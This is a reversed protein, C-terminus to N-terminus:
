AWNRKKKFILTGTITVDSPLSMKKKGNSWDDGSPTISLLLATCGGWHGVKFGSPNPNKCDNTRGPLSDFECGVLRLCVSLKKENNLIFIFFLLFHLSNTVQGKVGRM